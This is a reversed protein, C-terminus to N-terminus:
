AKLRTKARLKRWKAFLDEIYPTEPKAGAGMLARMVNHHEAWSALVVASQGLKNRANPNAGSALLREVIEAHGITAAAMLPTSGDRSRRNPDAGAALMREVTALEGRAAAQDLSRARPLPRDPPARRLKGIFSAFSPAVLTLNDTRPPEGEHAEGEHDWFWVKPRFRGAIGLCYLNGFPDTGIPLMGDPVRGDFTKRLKDLRAWSPGGHLGHLRRVLSSVSKTEVITAEPVGGNHELLFERYDAPLEHGIRRQFALLGRETCRGFRRSEQMKAALKSKV